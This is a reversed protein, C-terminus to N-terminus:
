EAEPRIITYGVTSDEGDSGAMIGVNVALTEDKKYMGVVMEAQDTWMVQEWDSFDSKVQAALEKVSRPDSVTVMMGEAVTVSQVVNESVLPVESPFDDPLEGFEIGAEGGTIGEIVDEAANKASEETANEVIADLPNAFCGTLGVAIVLALAGGAIRTPVSRRTITM